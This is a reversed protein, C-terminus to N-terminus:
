GAILRDALLSELYHTTVLGGPVASDSHLREAPAGSNGLQTVVLDAAWFDQATVLAGPTAVTFISAAKAAALSSSSDEIAIAEDARIGLRELALLYVEPDPKGKSVAQGSFVIDFSDLSLRTAKAIAAINNTSTTSAWVTKISNDKAEGLLRKVGPRAELEARALAANYINTKSSHLAEVETESLVTGTHEAYHRIRKKGGNIRLMTRYGDENWHWTMGAEAFAKNFAQRQMESTEAIVGISGFILAKLM